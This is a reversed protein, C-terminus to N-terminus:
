DATFNNEFYMYESRPRHSLRVEDDCVSLCIVQLPMMASPYFFVACFQEAFTACKNLFNCTNMMLMMLVRTNLRLMERKHNTALNIQWSYPLAEPDPIGSDRCIQHIWSFLYQIATLPVYGMVCIRLTVQWIPDTAWPIV